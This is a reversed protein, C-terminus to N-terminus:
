SSGDKDNVLLRGIGFMLLVIIGTGIIASLVYDLNGEVGPVSYDPFLAEIISSEGQLKQPVYGVFDKFEEPAWEGWATGEALLGLPTLLILIGIGIWLKKTTEM